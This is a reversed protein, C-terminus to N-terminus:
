ATGILVSTGSTPIATPITGTFSLSQEIGNVYIKVKDADTSGGGNYVFVVNYWTDVFFGPTDAFARSAVSSELFGVTWGDVTDWFLNIGDTASTKSWYSAKVGVSNMRVWASVSLETAGDINSVVGADFHDSTDSFSDTAIVFGGRFADTIWVDKVVTLGQWIAHNRNISDYLFNTGQESFSWWNILGTYQISNTNPTSSPKKTQAFPSPIPIGFGTQGTHEILLIDAKGSVLLGGQALLTGFISATGEALVGGGVEVVDALNVDALGGALAGGSGIIAHDWFAALSPAKTSDTAYDYAERISDSTATDDLFITIDNGIVWGPRDVIEQIVTKIDPSEYIGEKHWPEIDDWAVSASTRIASEAESTTTPPDSDDVDHASISVNANQDSNTKLAIFRMFCCNIRSGEPIAVGRFTVFSNHLEVAFVSASGGVLAGGTSVEFYPEVKAAGGILTGGGVGPWIM